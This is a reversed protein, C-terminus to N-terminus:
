LPLKNGFLNKGIIFSFSIIFLPHQDATEFLYKMQNANAALLALNMLAQAFMKSQYYQNIDPHYGITNQRQGAQVNIQLM